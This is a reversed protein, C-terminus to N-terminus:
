KRPSRKPPAEPVVAFVAKILRVGEEYGPVARQVMNSEYAFSNYHRKWTQGGYPIALAVRKAFIKARFMRVEIEFEKSAWGKGKEAILAMSFASMAAAENARGWGKKSPFSKPDMDFPFEELLVPLYSLGRLALLRANNPSTRMLKNIDARAAAAKGARIKAIIPDGAIALPDTAADWIPRGAGAPLFLPRPSWPKAPQKIIWANMDAWYKPPPTHGAGAAEVYTHAIGRRKLEASVARSGAVPIDDKEGHVFYLPVGRINELVDGKTASPYGAVSAGASWIEPHKLLYSWTGVGGMSGGSVVLRRFDIRYRRAAWDITRYVNAQEAKKSWFNGEVTTTPYVVFYGAKGLQRTYWVVLNDGDSSRGHLVVVLPWAKKPTYRDPMSLNFWGRESGTLWPSDVRWVGHKVQGPPPAAAAVTELGFLTLGTRGDALRDAYVAKRKDADPEIFFSDLDKEVQEAKGASWCSPPVNVTGAAQCVGAMLGTAWAVAAFRRGLHLGAWKMM